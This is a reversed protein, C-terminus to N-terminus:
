NGLVRYFAPLTAATDTFSGNGSGDTTITGVTTWTPAGIGGRLATYLSGTRQITYSAGPAGHITLVPQGTPSVIATGFNPPVAATNAAFSTQLQFLTTRFVNGEGVMEPVANTQYYFTYGFELTGKYIVGPRFTNAPILVSTASPDLTRSVCPNPAAFVLKGYTDYISLQIMPSPGTAPLSNWQLFFDNGANIAQAADYNAIMPAPPFTPVIMIVTSEAEDQQDIRMVYTGPPFDAALATDTLNTDYVGLNGVLNTVGNHVIVTENTFVLVTGDPLTLSGNTVTDTALTRKPPNPSRAFAIFSAISNTNPVLTTASIQVDTQM